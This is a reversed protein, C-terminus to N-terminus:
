GVTPRRLSALQEFLEREQESLRQPLLLQVRAFLDGRRDADRLLPMGQGRLRFSRGPQTEPPIKLKVTGGLTPVRVEGGLLATYLDVPLDCTLDDGQREFTRHSLVQIRLFADGAPAGGLGKGGKGAIRVRSGTQVGPPIKVELRSGGIDLLRSTGRYAEELTIEVQQEVNHGRRARPPTQQWRGGSQRTGGGFISQFFDSFGGGGGFLDNLDAQQARAGASSGPAFWQSFDFGAPDGGMQQWRQWQTGLRDYKKRKAPDSLVEHAENIAKFREEAAANGPNRDPHCQRALRRYARRIEKESADRPVGLVKYYDKYEM